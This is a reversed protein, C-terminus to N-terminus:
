EKPEKVRLQKQEGDFLDFPLDVRKPTGDAATFIVWLEYAGAPVFAFRALGNQSVTDQLYREHTPRSGLVVTAGTQPQDQENVISVEVVSGKSLLVERPAAQATERFDVDEDHRVFQPHSVSLKYFDRGIGGVKFAGREDTIAGGGTNDGDPRGPNMPRESPDIRYIEVSAGPLPAGNLKSKVTGELFLEAPFRVDHRTIKASEVTLKIPGYDGSGKGKATLSYEGPQLDTFAYESVEAKIEQQAAYDSDLSTLWLKCGSVYAQGQSDLIVGALAGPKPIVFDMQHVVRSMIMCEQEGLNTNQTDFLSVLHRGPKLGCIAYRGDNATEASKQRGFVAVGDETIKAVFASRVTFGAVPTGDNYRVHGALGGGNSVVLSIKQEGADPLVVEKSASDYAPHEATVLCKAKPTVAPFKFEGAESTQAFDDSVEPGGTQGQLKVMADAVPQGEENTVRGLLQVAPELLIMVEEGTGEPKATVGASEDVTKQVFGDAEVLLRLPQSFPVGELTFRGDEGTKGVLAALQGICNVSAGAIPKRDRQNLVVGGIKGGPKLLIVHDLSKKGAPALKGSATVYGRAGALYAVEDVAPLSSVGFTGNPSCGAEEYCLLTQNTDNVFFRVLADGVPSKDFENLVVGRVTLTDQSLIFDLKATDNVPNATVTAYGPASCHVITFPQRALAAPAVLMEYDGAENVGISTRRQKSGRQRVTLPTFEMSSPDFGFLRLKATAIPALRNDTVRGALCRFGITDDSGAGVAEAQLHLLVEASPNEPTLDVTDSVALYGIARGVVLFEGPFPLSISFKGASDTPLEVVLKTEQNTVCFVQVSAESVLNSQGALVQGTISYKSGHKHARNALLFGVVVAVALLGLVLKTSTKM